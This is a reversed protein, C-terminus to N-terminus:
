SPLASRKKDSGVLLYRAARLKKLIAKHVTKPHIELVTCRCHDDSYGAGSTCNELGMAQEVGFMVLAALMLLCELAQILVAVPM